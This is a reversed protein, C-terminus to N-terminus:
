IFEILESLYWSKSPPRPSDELFKISGFSVRTDWSFNCTTSFSDVALFNFFATLLTLFTLATVLIDGSFSFYDFSFSVALSNLSSSKFSPSRLRWSWAFTVFDNGTYTIILKISETISWIFVSDWSNLFITYIHECGVFDLFNNRSKTLFSASKLWTKSLGLKRLLMVFFSDIYSYMFSNSAQELLWSSLTKLM